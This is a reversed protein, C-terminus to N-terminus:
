VACIIWHHQWTCESHTKHIECRSWVAINNVIKCIITNKNKNKMNKIFYERVRPMWSLLYTLVTLLNFFLHNNYSLASFIIGCVLSFYLWNKKILYTCTILKNIKKKEFSLFHACHQLPFLLERFFLIHKLKRSPDLASLFLLFVPRIPWSLLLYGVSVEQWFPEYKLILRGM